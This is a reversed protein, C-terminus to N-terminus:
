EQPHSTSDWQQKIEIKGNSITSIIKGLLKMTLSVAKPSQKMILQYKYRIFPPFGAKYKQIYVGLWGIVMQQISQEKGIHTIKAGKNFVLNYHSKVESSGSQHYQDMHGNMAWYCVAKVMTAKSKLKLIPLILAKARNAKGANTTTSHQM